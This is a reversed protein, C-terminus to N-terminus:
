EPTGLSEAKGTQSSFTETELFPGEVFSKEAHKSPATVHEPSPLFNKRFDHTVNASHMLAVSLTGIKILREWLNKCRTWNNGIETTITSDTHIAGSVSEYAQQIGSAGLVKYDDLAREINRILLKLRTRVLPSLEQIGSLESYFEDLEARLEDFETSDLLQEQLHKATGRVHAIEGDRLNGRWQHWQLASSRPSLFSRFNDFPELYYDTDHGLHTVIERRSARLLHHAATIVEFDGDEFSPDIGLVKKQLDIFVQQQQNNIPISALGALYEYLRQTASTPIRSGNGANSKNSM